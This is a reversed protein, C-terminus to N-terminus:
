ATKNEDPNAGTLKKRRSRSMVMVWATGGLIGLGLFLWLGALGSIGRLESTKAETTKALVGKPGHNIAADSPRSGNLSPIVNQAGPVQKRYEEPPEVYSRAFLQNAPLILGLKEADVPLDSAALEVGEWEYLVGQWTEYYGGRYMKSEGIRYYRVPPSIERVPFGTPARRLRQLSGDGEFYPIQRPHLVGGKWRFELKHIPDVLLRNFFM